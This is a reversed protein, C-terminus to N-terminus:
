IFCKSAIPFTVHAIQLTRVHQVCGHVSVTRTYRPLFHNSPIHTSPTCSSGRTVVTACTDQAVHADTATSLQTAQATVNPFATNTM